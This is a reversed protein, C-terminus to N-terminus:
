SDVLVSRRWTRGENESVVLSVAPASPDERAYIPGGAGRTIVYPQAPIGAVPTEAGSVDGTPTVRWAGGTEETFLLSGDTMAVAGLASGPRIALAIRTWAAGAATPDGIRWLDALDNKVTLQDYRAGILYAGRGDPMPYLQAGRVGRPGRPVPLLRWTRGRDSSYATFPPDTGSASGGAAWLGGRDDFLAATVPVPLPPPHRLPAVVGTAPDLVTVARQCGQGSCLDTLVAGGPPVAQVPPGARLQRTSYTDIRDTPQSVLHHAPDLITLTHDAGALLLMASFGETGTLPPVPQVRRRLWTRGADESQLLAHQCTSPEGAIACIGVLAYAHQGAFKVDVLVQGAPPSYHMTPPPTAPTRDSRLRVTGTATVLALVLVALLGLGAGTRRRRRRVRARETLQHFPAREAADELATRLGAFDLDPM